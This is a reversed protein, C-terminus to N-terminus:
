LSNASKKTKGFVLLLMLCYDPAAADWRTQKDRLIKANMFSNMRM